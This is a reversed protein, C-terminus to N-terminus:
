PQSGGTAPLLPFARYYNDDTLSAFLQLGEGTYTGPYFMVLPVEDILAHLNNLVTHSRVLPWAAGVGTLFILDADGPLAEGISDLLTEPRILRGVAKALADSGKAAELAFAKKLFGRQELQAIVLSYLNFGLVRVGTSALSQKLKPTFRAVLPECAADYDFIYFAIENGLGKRSLFEPTALTAELKELRAGLGNRRQANTM